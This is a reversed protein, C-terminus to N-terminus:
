NKKRTQQNLNLKHSSFTLSHFHSHVSKVFTGNGIFSGAACFSNSVPNLARVENTKLNYLAAWAPHGQTTLPNHEVQDMVLSIWVSEIRQSIGLNVM